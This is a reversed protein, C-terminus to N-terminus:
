TTAVDTILEPATAASPSNAVITNRLTATGGEYNLIGGGTPASNESFTSNTV